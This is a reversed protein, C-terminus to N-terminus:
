THLPLGVSWHRVLLCATASFHICSPGASKRVPTGSYPVCKALPENSLSASSNSAWEGHGFQMDGSPLRGLSLYTEFQKGKSVVVDVLGDFNVDVVRTEAADLGLDVKPSLKNAAEIAVGELWWKKGRLKPHYVSYTKVKPMHLFDIIGDGDADLPAVNANSLKISGSNSRKRLWESNAM